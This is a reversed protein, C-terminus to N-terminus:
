KEPSTLRALEAELNARAGADLKVKGDLVSRIWASRGEKWEGDSLHAYEKRVNNVYNAYRDADASLVALDARVLSTGAWDTSGHEHTRTLMILRRAEKRIYYDVFDFLSDMMECSKAENDKGGPVVVLDHCLSALMLGLPVSRSLGDLGNLVDIWTLSFVEWAHDFNHYFRDPANMTEVLTHYIKEDEVPDDSGLLFMASEFLLKRDGYYGNM